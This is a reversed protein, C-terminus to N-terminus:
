APASAGAGEDIKLQPADKLPLHMYSWAHVLVLVACVLFVFVGKSV